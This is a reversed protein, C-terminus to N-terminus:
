PTGFKAVSNSRNENSPVSRTRKWFYYDLNVFARRFGFAVMEARARAVEWHEALVRHLAVVLGTRDRGLKCHVFMPREHKDSLLELVHDIDADVPMAAMSIPISRVKMEFKRGLAAERDIEKRGTRLDLITRVGLKKLKAFDAETEPESGRYIGESVKAFRHIEAQALPAVFLFFSASVLFSLHGRM